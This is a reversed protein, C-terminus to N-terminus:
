PSTPHFSPSPTLTWPAPVGMMKKVIPWVLVLHVTTSDPVFLQPGQTPQNTFIILLWVLTVPNSPKQVKDYVLFFFSFEM